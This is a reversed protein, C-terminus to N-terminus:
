KRETLILERLYVSACAFLLSLSMESLKNPAGDGPLSREEKHKKLKSKLEELQARLEARRKKRIEDM